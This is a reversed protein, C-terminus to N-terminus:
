DEEVDNKLDTFGSPDFDSASKIIQNPFRYNVLWKPLQKLQEKINTAQQDSFMVYELLGLDEEESNKAATVCFKYYDFFHKKNNASLKEQRNTLWTAVVNDFIPIRCNQPSLFYMFKTAFAPGCQELSLLTDYAGRRSIEDTNQCLDRVQRLQEGISRGGSELMVSTRYPGVPWSGFGWVMTMVFAEVLQEDNRGASKLKEFVDNRTIPRNISELFNSHDLLKKLHRGTEIGRGGKGKYTTQYHMWQKKNWYIAQAFYEKRDVKSLLVKLDELTKSASM